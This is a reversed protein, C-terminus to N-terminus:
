AADTILWGIVKERRSEPLAFRHAELRFREEAEAQGDCRCWKIRKFENRALKLISTYASTGKGWHVGAISDRDQYPVDWVAYWRLDTAKLNRDLGFEEPLAGVVGCFISEEIHVLHETRADASPDLPHSTEVSAVPSDVGVAEPESVSSTGPELSTLNSQRRHSCVSSFWSFM